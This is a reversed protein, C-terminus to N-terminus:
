PVEWDEVTLGPVRSFEAVNHTVVILSHALAISAIGLDFDSIPTGLSELYVRTEAYRRAAADDFPLSPYLALFADVRQQEAAPKASEAAGACLEGIVFACVALDSPPQATFRARVTANKGRLWAICVNTDLLYKM